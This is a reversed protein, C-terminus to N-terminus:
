RASEGRTLDPPLASGPPVEQSKSLWGEFDKMIQRWVGTAKEGWPIIQEDTLDLGAALPFGKYSIPRFDVPILTNSIQMKVTMNFLFDVTPNVISNLLGFGGVHKGVRWATSMWNQALWRGAGAAVRSGHAIASTLGRAAAGQAATEVGAMALYRVTEQSVGELAATGVSRAAAYGIAARGAAYLLGVGMWITAAIFILDLATGIWGLPSSISSLQWLGWPNNAHAYAHPVITTVWGTETSFEHTVRDVEVVGFMMNYSDNIIVVDWPNLARGVIKLEGRYMPRLGLAMNTMLCAATRDMGNCNPEVAIGLKRSSRKLQPHFPVGEDNPWSCWESDEHFVREGSETVFADDPKSLTNKHGRILISNVVESQSAVISNDIIDHEAFVVHYDRFPKFWPELQTDDLTNLNQQVDGKRLASQEGKNLDTRIWTAFYHVFIRFYPWSVLLAKSVTSGSDGPSFARRFAPNVEQMGPLPQSNNVLDQLVKLKEAMEERNILGSRVMEELAEKAAELTGRPNGFFADQVDKFKEPFLDGTFDFDEGSLARKFEEWNQNPGADPKRLPAMGKETIQRWWSEMSGPWIGGTYRIRFFYAFIFRQLQRNYDGITNWDATFDYSMSEFIPIRNIGAKKGEDFDDIDELGTNYKPLSRAWRLFGTYSTSLTDLFGASFGPNNRNAGLASGGIYGSGLGLFGSNNIKKGTNDLNGIKQAQRFHRETLESNTTGFESGWFANLLDKELGLISRLRAAKAMNEWRWLEIGRPTRFQYPQDPYGFFCTAEADFPRVACITGPIHRTMEQLGQWATQNYFHFEQEGRDTQSDRSFTEKIDTWLQALAGDPGVNSDVWVNRTIDNVTYGFTRAIFGGPGQLGLTGTRDAESGFMERLRDAGVDRSDFVRGLHPTLNKKEQGIRMLKNIAVRHNGNDVTVSVEQDLETKYGQAIFRMIKGPEIETIQGTFVTKLGDVDSSYGAQIIIGTGTQLRMRTLYDEREDDNGIALKKAEEPLLFSDTDFTGITNLLEVEAVPADDKSDTISFRIICNATYLDDIMRLVRGVVPLKDVQDRNRNNDWEVFYIRFAPFCRSISFTNDPVQKFSRMVLAKAHQENQRDFSKSHMTGVSGIYRKPSTYVRVQYENNGASRDAPFYVGIACGESSVVDFFVNKKKGQDVRDKLARDERLLDEIVQHLMSKAESPPLNTVREVNLNVKIQNQVAEGFTQGPVKLGAEARQMMRERLREHYFWFGPEMVDSKERARMYLGEKSTRDARMPPQVGLDSYTPAFRTWVPVGRGTEDTVLDDQPFIDLYTPLPMDPYNSALRRRQAETITSNLVVMRERETGKLYKTIDVGFRTVQGSTFLWQLELYARNLEDTIYAKKGANVESDNAKVRKVAPPADRADLIVELMQDWIERTLGVHERTRFDILANRWQTYSNSPGYYGQVTPDAAMPRGSQDFSTYNTVISFNVDEGTLQARIVAGIQSAWFTKGGMMEGVGASRAPSDPAGASFDLIKRGARDSSTNDSNADLEGAKLFMKQYTRVVNGFTAYNMRPAEPGTAGSSGFQRLCAATIVSPTVVSRISAQHTYNNWTQQEFNTGGFVFQAALKEEPSAVRKGQTASDASQRYGQYLDWLRAWLDRFVATPISQDELVLSQQGTYDYEAQIVSMDITYGNSTDEMPAMDCSVIVFKKAGVLNLVSNEITVQEDRFQGSQNRSIADLHDKMIAFQRVVAPNTTKFVLRAEVNSKGMVHVAPYRSGVLPLPVMKIGFSLQVSEVVFSEAKLFRITKPDLLDPWTARFDPSDGFMHARYEELYTGRDNTNKELFAWEAYRRLTSCQMIDPTRNGNGDRYELGYIGFASSNYRLFTLRVHLTNPVMPDTSMVVDQLVVPIAVGIAPLDSEETVTAAAGALGVRQDRDMAIQRYYELALDQNAILERLKDFNSVADNSFNTFDDLIGRTDAKELVRRRIEQEIEPTSYHNILAATLFASEMTTIPSALLTALLPRLQSNIAQAGAFILDVTIQTVSRPLKVVADTDARLTGLRNVTFAETVHIDTPDLNDPGFLTQAIRIVESDRVEEEILEFQGVFSGANKIVESDGQVRGRQETGVQWFSLFIQMARRKLKAKLEILEASDGDEQNLETSTEITSRVATWFSTWATQDLLSADRAISAGDIGLFRKAFAEESLKLDDDTPIAM